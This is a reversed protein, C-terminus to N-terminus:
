SAASIEKRMAMLEDKTIYTADQRARVNLFRLGNPGARFTYLTLGPIHVSHGPSLVRRGLHLEGELVFIIEDEQHAHQEIIGDPQVNVEFLQLTEPGGPHFVRVATALEGEGLKERLPGEPVVDRTVVLPTDEPSRITIAGVRKVGM